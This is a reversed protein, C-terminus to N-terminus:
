APKTSSVPPADDEHLAPEGGPPEAIRLHRTHVQRLSARHAITVYTLEPLAAIASFLQMGLDLTTFVFSRIDESIRQDPNDGQQGDLQGLYHARDRLWDKLYRDTM